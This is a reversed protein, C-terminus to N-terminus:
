LLTCACLNCFAHSIRFANNHIVLLTQLCIEIGSSCVKCVYYTQTLPSNVSFEVLEYVIM